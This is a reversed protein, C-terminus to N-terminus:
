NDITVGFTFTVEAGAALTPITATLTESGADYSVTNSGGTVAAAYTGGNDYSTYPPIADNIEVNSISTTGLNKIKIEYLITEGPEANVDNRSFAGVPNGDIGSDNKAQRKVLSVNSGIVTTVDNATVAAPPTIGNVDGTTTATVTTTNNLGDSVGPSATIKVIIQKSQGATLTGLDAASSIIPEGTDIEGNNNSDLYMTASFATNSNTLALAVASPGTNESVNGNNKVTHTYTVSGGPFIQGSNNPSITIERVTNVEIAVHIIDEATSGPSKIRVYYSNTAPPANAPLNVEMTIQKDGGGNITGTNGIVSGGADKFTVTVGSPLVTTAFTEDTSVAIDYNDSVASTNNAFLTFTSTVGPNETNTKVATGEPGANEGLVSGGGVVDDATLDVTSGTITTLEDVVTVTTAGDNISTATKNYKYPGSGTAGNPLTVKLIVEYDAGPAVPGTDPTGDANTDLLPSVGDSKYLIFSSGAPFGETGDNAVTINYSDTSNGDNTFTNTFSVTAGQAADAVTDGTGSVGYDELVTFNFTNSNFPGATGTGDDYEFGATNQLTGPNAAADINVDFTLTGSQGAGVDDITVTVEGATTINYDYAIGAQDVDDADSLATSGTESWRGTGAVYNMDSPLQDTLLLATAANNGSNTYTLTVTYPGSGPAGSNQSMSKTVNIVANDSVTIADTLADSVGNDFVSTATFDIDASQGSTASGPVQVVIVVDYRDGAGINPTNLGALDIFDDPVGDSNADAYIKISTPTFDQTTGLVATMTYSDSGNGNNTISHPFSLQGGPSVQKSQATAVTVGAVQQVITNVVNSTVTRSNGGADDYTASAQNGILTGADPATQALANDPTFMGIAAVVFLGVFMRMLASTLTNYTHKMANM